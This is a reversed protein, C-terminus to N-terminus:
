FETLGKRAVTNFFKVEAWGWGLVKYTGKRSKTRKGENARTRDVRVVM